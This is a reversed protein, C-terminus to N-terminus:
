KYIKHIFDDETKKGRNDRRLNMEALKAKFWDLDKTRINKVIERAIENIPYNDYRISLGAKEILDYSESESLYLSICIKVTCYVNINKLPFGNIDKTLYKRLQSKNVNIARALKAQDIGKKVLYKDIELGLESLGVAQM